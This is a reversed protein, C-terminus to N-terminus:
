RENEGLDSEFEIDTDTDEEIEYYEDVADVMAKAVDETKLDSENVWRNFLFLVDRKFDDSAVEIADYAGEIIQEAALKSNEQWRHLLCKSEVVCKREPSEDSM